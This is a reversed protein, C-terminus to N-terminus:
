KSPKRPTAMLLQPTTPQSEIDAPQWRTSPPTQVDPPQEYANKTSKTQSPDYEPDHPDTRRLHPYDVAM